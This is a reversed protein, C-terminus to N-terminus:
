VASVFSEVISLNRGLWGDFRDPFDDGYVLKATNLNPMKHAVCFAKFAGSMWNAFGAMCGGPYLKKDHVLMEDPDLGHSHAYCVYRFNFDDTAM